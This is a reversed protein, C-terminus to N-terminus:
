LKGTNGKKRKKMEKGDTERDLWLTKGKRTGQGTQGGGQRGERGFGEPRLKARTETRAILSWM